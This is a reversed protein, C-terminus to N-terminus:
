PLPPPIWQFSPRDSPHGPLRGVSGRHSFSFSGFLRQSWRACQAFWPNSAFWSNTSLWPSTSLWPNPTFWHADSKLAGILSYPVQPLPQPKLHYGGAEVAPNSPAAASDRVVKAASQDTMGRCLVLVLAAVAVRAVRPSM